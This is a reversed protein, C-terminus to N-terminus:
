KDETKTKPEFSSDAFMTVLKKYAADKPSAEKMEAIRELFLEMYHEAREESDLRKVTVTKGPCEALITKKYLYLSTMNNLNMFKKCQVEIIIPKM